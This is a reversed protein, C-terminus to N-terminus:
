RPLGAKIYGDVFHERDENRKFPQTAAWDCAQFGPNIERFRRAEERAEDLRGLQALSAALIRKAPLRGVEEKRLVNAAEAYRGAAYYAFGLDWYYWGPPYPNLHLAKEAWGIADEPQGQLVRLETMYALIDPHTPKIRLAIQLETEAEDLHGQKTRVYALARHAIPDNPDISVAMQACALGLAQNADVAERYNVAAGCYSIALCAHAEAFAPELGIAKLLLTRALSNGSPSHMLLVRGRVFFDYAEINMAGRRTSAETFLLRAPPQAHGPPAPPEAISLPGVFRYGVRPFTAIWDESDTSGRLRRRLEAIQVTLNSEEVCVNPWAADMLASKSVIQGRAEVLARLLALARSGISVPVGHEFLTERGTDLLFPGFAFRAM